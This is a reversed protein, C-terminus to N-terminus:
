PGNREAFILERDLTVKFEMDALKSAIMKQGEVSHTELMIRRVTNKLSDVFSPESFLIEETGEIDMKLLDIRGLGYTAILDRLTVGEVDGVPNPSVTHAWELGSVDSAITLRTPRSWVAAKLTRVHKLANLQVQLQIQRFNSLDPEVCLIHADPWRRCAFLMFLGVNAGLDVVVPDPPLICGNLLAYEQHFFIQIYVLVDSSQPRMMVRHALAPNVVEVM